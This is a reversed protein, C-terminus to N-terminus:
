SEEGDGGTRDPMLVAILAACGGLLVIAAVVKMLLGVSEEFDSVGFIYLCGTIAVALVALVASIIAITKM